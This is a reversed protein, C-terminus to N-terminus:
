NLFYFFPILKGPACKMSEVLKRTIIEQFRMWLDFLHSKDDVPCNSSVPFANPSLNGAQCNAPFSSARAESFDM